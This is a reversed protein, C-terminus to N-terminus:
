IIPCARPRSSINQIHYFGGGHVQWEEGDAGESLGLGKQLGLDLAIFYFSSGIWAIATIIHVWRAALSLWEWIVAFEYMDSGWQDPYNDACHCFAPTEPLGLAEM